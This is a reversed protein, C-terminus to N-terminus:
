RDGEKNKHVFKLAIEDIHNELDVWRSVHKDQSVKLDM